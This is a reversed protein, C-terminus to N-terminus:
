RSTPPRSGSNPALVNGPILITSFVLVALVLLMILLTGVAVATYSLTLKWRLQRLAKRLKGIM